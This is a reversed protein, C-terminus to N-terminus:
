ARLAQNELAILVTQATQQSVWAVLFIVLVDPLFVELQARSMPKHPLWTRNRPPTGSADLIIVLMLPQRSLSAGLAILFSKIDYMVAQALRQFLRAKSVLASHFVQFQTRSIIPRAFYAGLHCLSSRGNAGYVTM